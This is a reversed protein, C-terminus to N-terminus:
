SVPAPQAAVPETWEVWSPVNSDVVGVRTHLDCLLPQSDSATTFTVDTGSGSPAAFTIRPAGAAGVSALERGVERSYCARAPDGKLRACAGVDGGHPAPAPAGGGTAAVVVLIAGAAFLV